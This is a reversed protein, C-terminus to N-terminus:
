FLNQSINNNFSVQYYCLHLYEFPKYDEFLKEIEPNISFDDSFIDNNNKCKVICLTQKITKEYFYLDDIDIPYLPDSFEAEEKCNLRCNQLHKMYLRYKGLALEFNKVCDAYRNELYAEVGNEYLTICNEDNSLSIKPVNTLILLTILICTYLM